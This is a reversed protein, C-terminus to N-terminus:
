EDPRLLLNGSKAGYAPRDFGLIQGAAAWRKSAPLKDYWAPVDPKHYCGLGTLDLYLGTEEALRVLEDLRALQREDPRGRQPMFKGFQLHIRVVNAGMAKMEQFDEVVTPWHKHWYDEILRGDRDHDYNFGWPMFPRGSPVRVFGRDDGSVRVNELDAAPARLASAASIIIAALAGFAM